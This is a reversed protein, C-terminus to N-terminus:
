PIFVVKLAKGSIAKEVGAQFSTLPLVDTVLRNGDLRGSAMMSVAQRHHRPAFTTTGIVQLGRYHILNTDLGPRSRDHPLGGFLLIRGGKRAMELAQVQTDPVPNATIVVDAGKGNTLRLVEEVLDVEGAHITDDPGFPECLKLRDAFVDAVMVRTAGRARALAVHICGIPGSGIIVVTDGLGVQGKEQANLCSSVPESVAAHVPDLGDPIPVVTGTRLAEGPLALYEAFGGPWHQGIERAHDCLEHRGEICFDCVGCYVMPAVALRDGRRWAGQYGSGTEVVLGAIEHGITWPLKVNRHGTSLTRLDSGCLGCALVRLLVGDLPCAPKPVKEVQYVKPASVVLAKMWESM